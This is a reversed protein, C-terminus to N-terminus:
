LLSITFFREVVIISVACTLLLLDVFRPNRTAANKDDNWKYGPDVVHIKWGVNTQSYSQL